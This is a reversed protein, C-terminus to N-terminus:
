ILIVAILCFSVFTTNMRSAKTTVVDFACNPKQVPFEPAGMKVSVKPDPVVFIARGAPVVVYVNALV